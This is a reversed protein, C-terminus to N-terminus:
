SPFFYGEGEDQTRSGTVAFESNIGINSLYELIVPREGKKEHAM